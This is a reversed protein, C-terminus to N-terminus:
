SSSRSLSTTSSVTTATDQLFGRKALDFAYIPIASSIADTTEYEIYADSNSRNDEIANVRIEIDGRMAEILEGFTRM